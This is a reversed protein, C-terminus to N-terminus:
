GIEIRGTSEDSPPTPNEAECDSLARQARALELEARSLTSAWQRAGSPDLMGSGFAGSILDIDGPDSSHIGDLAAQAAAVAARQAACPDGAAHTGPVEGATHLVTDGPGVAVPTLDVRPLEVPIYDIPPVVVPVDPLVGPAAHTGPVEGATHLVTDHPVEGATHMVTDSTPVVVPDGTVPLGSGLCAALAQKATALANEAVVLRGQAVELNLRATGQRTAADVLTKYTEPTQPKNLAEADDLGAQARTFEAQADQVARRADQVAVQAAALAAREALCPADMAMTGPLVGATHLVTDRTMLGVNHLVTDAKFIFENKTPDFIYRGKKGDLEGPEGVEEVVGASVGVAVLGIGVGLPL